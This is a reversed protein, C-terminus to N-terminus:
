KVGFRERGWRSIVLTSVDGSSLPAWSVKPFGSLRRLVLSVLLLFNLDSGQIQFLCPQARSASLRCPVCFSLSPELLRKFLCELVETSLKVCCWLAGVTWVYLWGTWIVSKAARTDSPAPITVYSKTYGEPIGGGPCQGVTSVATKGISFRIVEFGSSM